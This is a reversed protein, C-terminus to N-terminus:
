KIFYVREDILFEDGYTMYKRVNEKVVGMKALKELLMSLDGDVQKFERSNRLDDVSVPFSSNSLFQTVPKSISELNYEIFNEVTNLIEKIKDEITIEDRLKNFLYEVSSNVTVAFSLIDKDTIHGDLSMLLRAYNTLVEICWQYATEVKNTLFYKKTYHISNLLNCLIEINRADRDKDGYFRSSMHIDKIEGDSCYVLKGTFFAKHFTGGKLMNKYSDIFVEKSIYYIHVPINYVKGYIHETKGKEKTIVLFDIDSEEWIDGSVMSGYVVISIVQSNSKLKSVTSEYAEQYNRINVTM